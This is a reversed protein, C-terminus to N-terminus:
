CSVMEHVCLSVSNPAAMDKPNMQFVRYYIFNIKTEKNAKFFILFSVLMLIILQMLETSQVIPETLCENLESSFRFTLLIKM